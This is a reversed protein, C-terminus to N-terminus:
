YVGPTEKDTLPYDRKPSGDEGGWDREFHEGRPIVASEISLAGPWLSGLSVVKVAVAM